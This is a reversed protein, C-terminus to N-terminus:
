KKVIWFSDGLTGTVPRYVYQLHTRNHAMVHGYGFTDSYNLSLGPTDESLLALCFDWSLLWV